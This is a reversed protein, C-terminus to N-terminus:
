DVYQFEATALVAQALREYPGFGAAATAEGGGDLWGRALMRESDTPSRALAARWIAVIRGDPDAGGEAAARAAIRTAAEVVLPSNLVALSQQPVTTRTRVHVATDPNAVDFVRMIGPVDQRDVAAYLSRTGVAAVALPDVGPGGGAARDLTGAAALLSDRWPEWDLRRRNARSCLRNDPDRANAAADAVSSQRWAATTVIERHLWRLSWRGDDVFRRALDDLLDPHSPPEGRLGFDGPTEVLGRGVHHTWAWNVLVRATLPNDPDVIRWALDLRGSSLRDVAAGGLVVPLRREVRPGPKKPNGRIFVPSDVLRRCDVLTMARPPGGPATALHTTIEKELRRHETEEPRVALRMAEARSVVFPGGETGFMARVAAVDAPEAAPVASGGAWEPAVRAVLRGYVEAVQRLNAPRTAAFEERVVANVGTGASSDAWGALLSAVRRGVDDDSLGRVECWPGLVPHTAMGGDALRVLADIVGQVLEYRDPLRPPRGDAGRAAPRASECWYDAAHSVADRVGRAHVASEHDLLAQRRGALTAAFTEAEPGSPPEGIVPLEKPIESSAFIGHLAYYDAATIPEYKHDHCRACAVTLGMLGRTVLDIRDDVIDHQNGLFTRGVTLFGLAALDERPVPPVVQDAAIQLTVFRDYPVDAQLSRVVWDRYTWAFPYLSSQADFAYGMTDAYRALDLWKRAWHEAHERSALLRDVLARFANESPNAVFADAEGATLPLGTLDFSLRRVLDRPAAPAAPGLGAASLDSAIFRDIASAQWAERHEAPFGAAVAPAAHRTPPRFAWHTALAESVRRDMDAAPESSPMAGEADAGQGFWPVGAAVWSELVGIEEESLRGDPPMELGDAHRVAAILRSGAADGPVVAPGGDGGTLVARRSDLRLGSEAVSDGHCSGCRAILLPRVRTEFEREADANAAWGFSAPGSVWAALVLWAIASTQSTM